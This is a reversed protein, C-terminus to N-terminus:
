ANRSTKKRRDYGSLNWFHTKGAEGPNTILTINVPISRGNTDIFEYEFSSSSGILAKQLHYRVKEENGGSLGNRKTKNIEKANYGLLAQFSRNISVLQGYQNMAFIPDPNKSFLAEYRGDASLIENNNVLKEPNFLVSLLNM